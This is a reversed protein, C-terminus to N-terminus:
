TPLGREDGLSDSRGPEEDPTHDEDIGADAVSIKLRGDVLFSVLGRTLVGRNHARM